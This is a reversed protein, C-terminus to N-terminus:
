AGGYWRDVADAFRRDVSPMYVWEGTLYGRPWVFLWVFADLVLWAVLAVIGIWFPVSNQTMFALIIMAVALGLLTWTAYGCWRDRLVAANSLPVQGTIREKAFYRAILWPFFGFLILIWTWSPTSTFDVPALIDAKEGTKACIMPLNGNELDAVTATTHAM